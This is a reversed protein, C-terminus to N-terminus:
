SDPEDKQRPRGSAAGGGEDVVSDMVEDVEAAAAPSLPYTDGASPFAAASGSRGPSLSALFDDDLAEDFGEFAEETIVGGAEEILARIDLERTLFPAGPAGSPPIAREGRAPVTQSVTREQRLLAALIKLNKKRIELSRSQRETLGRLEDREDELQEIYSEQEVMSRQIEVDLGRREANAVSAAAQARLRIVEERLEWLEGQRAELMANVHRLETELDERVRMLENENEATLRAIQAKMGNIRDAASLQVQVEVGEESTALAEMANRLDEDLRRAQSKADLLESRLHTNVNELDSIAAEAAMARQRANKSASADPQLSGVQGELLDVRRRSAALDEELGAIWRHASSLEEELGFIRESADALRAELVASRDTEEELEGSRTLFRADLAAMRERETALNRLAAAAEEEAKGLAANLAAVRAELVAGRGEAEKARASILEVAHAQRDIEDAKEQIMLGLDEAARQSRRAEELATDRQREWEAANLSAKELQEKLQQNRAQAARLSLGSEELRAETARAERRAAEKQAIEDLLLRHEEDARRELREREAAANSRLRELEAEFASVGPSTDELEQLQLTLKRVQERTAILERRQKSAEKHLSALEAEAGAVQEIKDDIERQKAKAESVADHLQTLLSQRDREIDERDRAALQSLRQADALDAELKRTKRAEEHFATKHENIQALGGAVAAELERIARDRHTLKERLAAAETEAVARERGEAEARALSARAEDLRAALSAIERGRAENEGRVLSLSGQLKEISLRVQQALASFPLQAITTEDVRRYRPSCLALFHTPAEGGEPILRDDLLPGDGTLRRGLPSIVAGHLPQQTFIFVHPFHRRLGREFELFDPLRQDRGTADLLPNDRNPIMVALLGSPNLLMRAARIIEDIPGSEPRYGLALVLDFAGSALPLFGPVGTVRSVGAARSLEHDASTRQVAVVSKASAALLGIGREDPPFLDAVLGGKAFKECLLYAPLHSGIDM